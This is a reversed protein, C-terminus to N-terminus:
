TVTKMSQAFRGDKWPLVVPQSEARDTQLPCHRPIPM